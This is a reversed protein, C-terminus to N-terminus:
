PRNFSTVFMPLARSCGFVLRKSVPSPLLGFMYVVSCPRSSTAPREEKEETASGCSMISIIGMHCLKGFETRTPTKVINLVRVCILFAMFVSLPWLSYLLRHCLIASLTLPSNGQFCSMWKKSEAVTKCNGKPYLQFCSTVTTNSPDVNLPKRVM